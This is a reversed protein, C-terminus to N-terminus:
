GFEKKFIGSVDKMLEILSNYCSYQTNRESDFIRSNSKNVYFGIPSATIHYEQNELTKLVLYFLDGLSKIM